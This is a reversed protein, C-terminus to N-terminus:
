NQPNEVSNAYNQLYAVYNFMSHDSFNDIKGQRIGWWMGRMRDKFRQWGTVTRVNGWANLYHETGHHRYGMIRFPVRTVVDNNNVWRHHEVGLSQVYKSNGVRPSGYTYVQEIPPMEPDQDCRSAMITAMAAGLSHGTFWLKRIKCKASLDQDIMPWLDDVEQKFGLHVKGVTEAMTLLSKLDAKIDNFQNPQTGRCAVVVDQDSSFCYAQAGDRNYFKIDQFGLEIAHKKVTDVEDLYAIQSLRAFLLSRERFNMELIAM